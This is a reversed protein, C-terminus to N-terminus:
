IICITDEQSDEFWHVMLEYSIPGESAVMGVRYYQKTAEAPHLLLARLNPAGTEDDPKTSYLLMVVLLELGVEKDNHLWDSAIYLTDSEEKTPHFWFNRWEDRYNISINTPVWTPMAALKGRIRLFGGSVQGFPHESEINVCAYVITAEETIRQFNQNRTRWTRVGPCAAWSWSPAVYNHRRINQLHTHLGRSLMTHSSYWTLGELLNGKWLGALYQDQLAESMIRALGAIAPLRDKDFTVLRHGYSDIILNWCQYLERASIRNEKFETVQSLFRSTTIDIPAEDVETWLYRACAFHMKLSGFLLLRTSMEQEQYTWCRQNWKSSVHEWPFKDRNYFRSARSRLRILYSGKITKRLTSQFPVQIAPARDLFSEHCSDSNLSCITVFAHRYVLNMQSSEHSWDDKDDQIICLADIWLYRLGIVRTIAIADKITPTILEEPLSRCRDGLSAKETKFQSEADKEDGWCYSLAAYKIQETRSSNSSLVLRPLVSADYGVDILRTPVFQSPITPHCKSTCHDLLRRITGVNM